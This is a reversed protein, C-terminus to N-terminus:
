LKRRQVRARPQADLPEAEAAAAMASAESSTPERAEEDDDDALAPTPAASTLEWAGNRDRKIEAVQAESIELTKVEGPKFM